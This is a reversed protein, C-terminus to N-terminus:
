KGKGKPTGQPRLADGKKKEAPVPELTPTEASSATLSRIEEELESQTWSLKAGSILVFTISSNDPISYAMIKTGKLTAYTRALSLLIDSM